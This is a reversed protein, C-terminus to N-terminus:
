GGDKSRGQKPESSASDRVQCTKLLPNYHYLPCPYNDCTETEARVWMWCELCQMKIAERPSAEGSMCRDYLQRYKKPMDARRKAIREQPTKM